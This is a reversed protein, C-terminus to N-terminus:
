ADLQNLIKFSLFCSMSWKNGRTIEDDRNFYNNLLEKLKALTYRELVPKVQKLYASKPYYPVDGGIEKKYRANYEKLLNEADIRYQAMGKKQSIEILLSGDEDRVEGPDDENYFKIMKSKPIETESIELINTEKTNTEKTPLRKALSPTLRKALPTLRKALAWQNYNQNFKLQNGQRLILRKALLSMIANHCSGRKMGTLKEFQTISIWDWDKRRKGRSWGWTKRWLVWIIRMEEGPINVTALHEALENAVSFHGNKLSPNAM